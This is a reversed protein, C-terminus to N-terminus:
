SRTQRPTSRTEKGKSEELKEARANDCRRQYSAADREAWAALGQKESKEVREWGELSVRGGWSNRMEGEVQVSAELEGM